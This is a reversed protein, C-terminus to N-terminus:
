LYGEHVQPLSNKISICAHILSRTEDRICIGIEMCSKDEYFSVDINCKKFGHLPPMWMLNTCTLVRNASIHNM